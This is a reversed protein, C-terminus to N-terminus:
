QSSALGYAEAVDLMIRAVRVILLAEEGHHCIIKFDGIISKLGSSQESCTGAAPNVELMTGWM